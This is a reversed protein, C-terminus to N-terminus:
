AFRCTTARSFGPRSPSTACRPSSRTASDSPGASMLQVVLWRDYRDVILSPLGDGEGHVLRYANTESVLASRRDIARGIQRRWWAADITADADRDLLRLSIESRPSWLAIGLPKGRQDDVRVAGADGAPREVVDSRYIWPHGADWRRAGKASVIATLMDCPLARRAQPAHASM